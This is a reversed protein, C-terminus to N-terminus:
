GIGLVSQGAVAFFCAAALGMARCFVLGGVAIVTGFLLRFYASCVCPIRLVASRGDM